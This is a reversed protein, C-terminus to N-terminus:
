VANIPKKGYKRGLKAEPYPEIRKYTRVAPDINDVHSLPIGRQEFQGWAYQANREMDAKDQLRQALSDRVALDFFASKNSM